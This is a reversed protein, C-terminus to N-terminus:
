LYCHTDGETQGMRNSHTSKDNTTAQTSTSLDVPRQAVLCVYVVGLHLSCVWDKIRRQEAANQIGSYKSHVWGSCRNCLYSM